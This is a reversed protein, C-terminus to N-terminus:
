RYNFDAALSRVFPSDGSTLIYFKERARLPFFVIPHFTTLFPQYWLLIFIALSIKKKKKSTESDNIIKLIIKM